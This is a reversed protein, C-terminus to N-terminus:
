SLPVVTAPCVHRFPRSQAGQVGSRVAVQWVPKRGHLPVAHPVHLRVTSPRPVPAPAQEASCKQWDQVLLVSQGTPKKQAYMGPQQGEFKMQAPPQM